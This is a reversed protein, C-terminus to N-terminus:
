LEEMKVSIQIMELESYLYSGTRQSAIVTDKISKLLQFDLYHNYTIVPITTDKCIFKIIM